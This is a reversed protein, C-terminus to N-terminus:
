TRTPLLEAKLQANARLTAALVRFEELNIYGDGDTDGFRIIAAPLHAAQPWGLPGTCVHAVLVLDVM